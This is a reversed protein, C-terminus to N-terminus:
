VSSTHDHFLALSISFFVFFFLFFVISSSSSALPIFPNFIGQQQHSSSSSSSSNLRNNKTKQKQSNGKLLSVKFRFRLKGDQKHPRQHNKEGMVIRVSLLM